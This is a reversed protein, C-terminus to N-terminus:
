LYTNLDYCFCQSTLDKTPIIKLCEMVRRAAKKPFLVTGVIKIMCMLIYTACNASCNSIDM